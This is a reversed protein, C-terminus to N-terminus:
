EFKIEMDVKKQWEQFLDREGYIEAHVKNYDEATRFDVAVQRGGAEALREEVAQRRSKLFELAAKNDCVIQLVGGDLYGAKCKRLTPRLMMDFKGTLEPWNRILERIGDPVTKEQIRRSPAPPEASKRAGDPPNALPKPNEDSVGSQQGPHQIYQATNEPPATNASAFDEEYRSSGGRGYGDASAAGGAFAAAADRELKDLRAFVDGLNESGAPNLLRIAAAELLIRPNPAYRMQGPLASFANIGDILLKKDATKAQENLRRLADADADLAADAGATAAVLVNRFHRLLDNAFQAVDRGSMVAEQIVGLAAAADYRFLADAFAFLVASDAAGTLRRVMGATIREDTYFSACQDLVSLADRLAGDSLSVIYRLAEPAVDPPTGGWLEEGSSLYSELAANMDEPSIRRFDFRQCRSIITPPLKQPDTTALIFIIHAPPEELTKLLANFAGSSLMHAEDVIYVRFRGETPPYLVEERLDRINDVGNNSAADIEVVNASRQAAINVCVSCKLCPEGNEPSLCNVARAFVRAASTKGTGRTGSFLYAHSVRGSKIQNKLARVIHEQGVIDSFLKPRLRRYLAQYPM